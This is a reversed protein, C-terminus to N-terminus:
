EAATRASETAPKEVAEVGIAKLLGLLALRKPDQRDDLASYLAQRSVNAREAIQTMGRARAVTGLAQSIYGPNGTEIADALLELQSAETDLYRAEDFPITELPM